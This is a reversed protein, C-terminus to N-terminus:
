YENEQPLFGEPFTLSSVFRIPRADKSGASEEERQSVASPGRRIAM